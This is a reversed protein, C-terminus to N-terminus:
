KRRRIGSIGALACASALITLGLASGVPLASDSVNVLIQASIERAVLAKAPTEEVMVGVGIRYLGSDTVQANLIELTLANQGDLLADDKYWKVYEPAEFYNQLTGTLTITDGVVYFGTASSVSVKPSFTPPMQAPDLAAAVYQPAAYGQNGVFYQYEAYNSYTDGDADGFPGLQSIGVTNANMGGEPPTLGIDELLLLLQDMAANTQPDGMTAFGALVACLSGVLKPAMINEVIPRLDKDGDSKFTALFLAELVLDRVFVFNGQFAAIAQSHLPHSTSNLVFALIGLEYQADPIGNPTVPIEAAIDVPGNIDMNLCQVLDAFQAVEAALSSLGALSCYITDSIGCFDYDGPNPWTIPNTLEIALDANYTWSPQPTMPLGTAAPCGAFAPGPVPVYASAPMGAALVLAAVLLGACFSTKKM